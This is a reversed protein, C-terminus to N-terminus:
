RNLSLLIKQMQKLQMQWHYYCPRAIVLPPKKWTKFAVEAAIVAAEIQAMSAEPVQTIETGTSPNLVSILTGEGKVFQENILLQTPILLM